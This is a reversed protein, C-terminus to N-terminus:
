GGEMGGEWLLFLNNGLTLLDTIEPHTKNGFTILVPFLCQSIYKFWYFTFKYVGNM